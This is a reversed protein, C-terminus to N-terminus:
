LVTSGEGVAGTGRANEGGQGEVGTGGRGAGARVRANEIVERVGRGRAGGQWSRSERM